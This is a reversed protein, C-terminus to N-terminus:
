GVGGTLNNDMDYRLFYDPHKWFTVGDNFMKKMREMYIHPIDGKINVDITQVYNWYPRDSINPVKLTNVKYGYMNFYQDIREAYEYRIQMQYFYFQKTNNAINYSGASTNGRAQDPQISTKYLQAMQHYVAMAGGVTMTTNATAAGAIISGIGLATNFTTIIGNEALWEKYMDNNWSCYPYGSLSIAYEEHHSTEGVPNFKYSSPVAKLTPNPAIHGIIRFMVKNPYGSEDFDEYRFEAGLGENNSVYLVNYPYCFLKKNKPIYGSIDNYPKDFEVYLMRAVINDSVIGSPINVLFHPIAAIFVVAESKGAKIYMNLMDKLDTWNNKSFYWYKLGSYLKDYIGGITNDVGTIPSLDSLGVLFGIETMSENTTNNNASIRKRIQYDGYDLGEDILNKGIRDDRVHERVVFSPLLEVDFMFTQWVDIDFYIDTAEPNVYEFKTIFGYFWKNGFNPNQFAIYNSDLLDDIYAPVRIPANHRIYSLDSFIHKIVNKRSFYQRQAQENYFWLQNKYKNDLPTNLLYVRSIPSFAM